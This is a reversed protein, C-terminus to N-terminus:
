MNVESKKNKIYLLVDSNTQKKGSRKVNISIKLFIITNSCYMNNYQIEVKIERKIHLKMGTDVLFFTNMFLFM